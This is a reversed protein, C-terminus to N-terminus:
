SLIANIKVELSAVFDKAYWDKLNWIDVFTQPITTINGYQRMVDPMKLVFLNAANGEEYKFRQTVKELQHPNFYFYVKTYDAPAEELIFTAATYGAFVAEPLVLSEIERVPEDVYTKYIVDKELSRVSAWYYLLKRYDELIFFKSTKRIAGMETPIRLAHNVTSLSYGFSNALEQQTHKFRKTDLAEFLLHHWITEIKKM